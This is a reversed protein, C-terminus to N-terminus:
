DNDICKQVDAMLFHTYSNLPSISLINSLKAKIDKLEEKSTEENWGFPMLAALQRSAWTNSNLSINPLTRDPRNMLDRLEEKLTATNWSFPTLAALQRNTWISTSNVVLSTLLLLGSCFVAAYRLGSMKQSILMTAKNGHLRTHSASVALALLFFFYLGNAGNQFNFDIASHILFAMIGALSGWTLYM